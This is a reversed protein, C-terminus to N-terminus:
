EGRTASGRRVRPQPNGCRAPHYRGPPNGSEDGTQRLRLKRIRPYCRIKGPHRHCAPEIVPIVGRGYFGELFCCYGSANIQGLSLILIPGYSAFKKIPITFGSTIGARHRPVAQSQRCYISLVRHGRSPAAHSGTNLQNPRGAEGGM